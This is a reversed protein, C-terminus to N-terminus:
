HHCHCVGAILKQHKAYIMQLRELAPWFLSPNSKGPDAIEEKLEKALAETLGETKLKKLNVRYREQFDRIPQKAKHISDQYEAKLSDLDGWAFPALLLSLVIPIRSM